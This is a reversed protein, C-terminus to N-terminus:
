IEIAQIRANFDGTTPRVHIVTVSVIDGISILYGNNNNGNYNFDLDLPGGHRSYKRDITTGNLKVKYEAINTGSVSVRQLFTTKGVAGTHTILSTETSTTVSNAEGYKNISTLAPNPNINISGDANIELEDGDSDHIAVNDSSADLNSIVNVDLGVDPGITTTTVLDTGDGIRISDNTHDIIVEVTGIVVSVAADVRLRGTSEEFAHQLVQNGDFSSPPPAPM